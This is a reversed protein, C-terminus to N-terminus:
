YGGGMMSYGNRYSVGKGRTGASMYMGMERSNAPRYAGALARDSRSVGMPNRSAGSYHSRSSYAGAVKYMTPAVPPRPTARYPAAHADLPYSRSMKVGKQTGVGRSRSDTRQRMTRDHGRRYKQRTTLKPKMM